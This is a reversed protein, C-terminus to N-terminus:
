EEISNEFEKLLESDEVLLKEFMVPNEIAMLALEELKQEKDEQATTDEVTEPESQHTEESPSYPIEETKQIDINNKFKITIKDISLESVGCDSAVQILKGLEEATM